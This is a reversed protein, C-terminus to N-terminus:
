RWTEDKSSTLENDVHQLSELDGGKERAVFLSLKDELLEMFLHKKIILLLCYFAIIISHMLRASSFGSYLYSSVSHPLGHKLQFTHVYSFMAAIPLM